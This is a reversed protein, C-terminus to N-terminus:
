LQPSHRLASLLRRHLPFAFGNIHIPRLMVQLAAALQSVPGDQNRHHHRYEHGQAQQLAHAGCPFDGHGLQGAIGGLGDRGKALIHQIVIPSGDMAQGTRAANAPAIRHPAARREGHRIRMQDDPLSRLQVDHVFVAIGGVILAQSRLNLKGPHAAAIHGHNDPLIGGGLEQHLIQGAGLHILFGVGELGQEHQVAAKIPVIALIQPRQGHVNEAGLGIGDQIGELYAFHIGAFNGQSVGNGILHEKFVVLQPHEIGALEIGIVILQHLIGVGGHQHVAPLENVIINGGLAVGPQEHRGRGLGVGAAGNALQAQEAAAQVAAIGQGRIAHARRHIFVGDIREGVGVQVLGVDIGLLEVGIFDGHGLFGRHRLEQAQQATFLGHNGAAFGHVRHRQGVASM